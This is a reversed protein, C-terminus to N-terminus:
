FKAKAARVLKGITETLQAERQILQSVRERLANRENELGEAFTVSVCGLSKGRGYDLAAANTEPTSTM